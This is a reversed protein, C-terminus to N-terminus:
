MIWRKMLEYSVKLKVTKQQAFTQSQQCGYEVKLTSTLFVLFVRGRHPLASEAAAINALSMTASRTRLRNLNLNLAPNTSPRTAASQDIIWILTRSMFKRPFEWKFFLDFPSCIVWIKSQNDFGIDYPVRTLWQVHTFMFLVACQHM